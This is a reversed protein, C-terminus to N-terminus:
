PVYGWSRRTVVSWVHSRTINFMDALRATGVGSSYLERMKTVDQETLKKIPNKSRGWRMDHVNDRQTGIIIHAPNVCPRNDCTHRAVIHSPLKGYKMEAVVRHANLVQSGHCVRGYGTDNLNGRWEWCSDEPLGQPTYEAMYEALTM